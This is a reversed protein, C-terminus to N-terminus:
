WWRSARRSCSWAPTAASTARAGQVPWAGDLGPGLTQPSPLPPPFLNPPGTVLVTPRTHALPASASLVFSRVGQPGILFGAFSSSSPAALNPKSDMKSDPATELHRIGSPLVLTPARTFSLDNIQHLLSFSFLFLASLTLLFLWRRSSLPRM